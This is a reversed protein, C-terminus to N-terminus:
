HNALVGWTELDIRVAARHLAPRSDENPLQAWQLHSILFRHVLTVASPLSGSHHLPLPCKAGPCATGM